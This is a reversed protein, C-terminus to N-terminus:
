TITDKFARIEVVRTTRLTSKFNFCHSTFRQKTHYIQTKKSQALILFPLTLTFDQWVDILNYTFTIDDPPNLSLVSYAKQWQWSLGHLIQLVVVMVEGWTTENWLKLEKVNQVYIADSQILSGLLLILWHSCCHHVTSHLLQAGALHNEFFFFYLSSKFSGDPGEASEDAIQWLRM